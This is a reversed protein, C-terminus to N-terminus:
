NSTSRRLLTTACRGSEVAMSTWWRSRSLVDNLQATTFEIGFDQSGRVRGTHEFYGVGNKYLIVKRVPLSVSTSAELEHGRKSQKVPNDQAFIASSFLLCVCLKEIRM